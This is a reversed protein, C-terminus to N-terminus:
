NASEEFTLSWTLRVLPMSIETQGDGYGAQGNYNASVYAEIVTEVRQYLAELTALASMTRIGSAESFWDAASAGSVKAVLAFLVSTPRSARDSALMYNGPRMALFPMRSEAPQEDDDVGVLVTLPKSFTAQAYTQVDHDAAILAAIEAMITTPTRM